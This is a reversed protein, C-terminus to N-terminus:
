NFMEKYFIWSDSAHDTKSYINLRNHGESPVYSKQSKNRGKLRM